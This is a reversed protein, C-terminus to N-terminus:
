ESEGPLETNTYNVTKAMKYIDSLEDILSELGNLDFSRTDGMGILIIQTYPETEEEVYNIKAAMNGVMGTFKFGAHETRVTM